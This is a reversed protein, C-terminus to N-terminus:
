FIFAPGLVFQNALGQTQNLSGTETLLISSHKPHNGVHVEPNWICPVCTFECVHAQVCAFCIYM